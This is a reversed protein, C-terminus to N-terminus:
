QYKKLQKLKMQKHNPRHRAHSGGQLPASSLDLEHEWCHRTTRRSDFKDADKARDSDDHWKYGLTDCELQKDDRVVVEEAVHRAIEAGNQATESQWRM